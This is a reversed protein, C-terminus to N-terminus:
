DRIEFIAEVPYHDSIFDNEESNHVTVSRCFTSLAISCMIYDIREPTRGINGATRWVGILIPTPFTHRRHLPVFRETVDILPFSLFSSIVSYDLNSGILNRDSIGKKENALDGKLYKQILDPNQSYLDADFPSHANFDGLVIYKDTRAKIDNVIEKIIGAENLRYNWDAPSLHIGLFDIGYTRCHIIDNRLDKRSHIKEVVISKNSTIAVSGSKVYFDHGWEKADKALQEESSYMEQLAIVDANQSKLWKVANEHRNEGYVANNGLGELINYTIIKIETQAYGNTSM